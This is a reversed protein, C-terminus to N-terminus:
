NRKSRRESAAARYPERALKRAFGELRGARSLRQGSGIRLNRRPRLRRASWSRSYNDKNISSDAPDVRLEPRAVACESEILSTAPAVLM